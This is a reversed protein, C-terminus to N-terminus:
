LTLHLESNTNGDSFPFKCTSKHKTVSLFESTLDSFSQVPYIQLLYKCCFLKSPVINFNLHCPEEVIGFWCFLFFFESKARHSRLAVGVTQCVLKADM